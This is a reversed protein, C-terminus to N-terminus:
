YRSNIFTDWHSLQIIIIQYQKTLIQIIESLLEM